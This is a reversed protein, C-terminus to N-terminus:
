SARASTRSAWPAGSGATYEPERTVETINSRGSVGWGSWPNVEVELLVSLCCGVLRAVYGESLCNQRCLQCNCVLINYSTLIPYVNQIKIYFGHILPLKLNVSHDFLEIYEFFILTLNDM